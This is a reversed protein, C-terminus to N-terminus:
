IGAIAHRVSWDIPRRHTWVLRVITVIYALLAIAIVASWLTLGPLSALLTVALGIVGAALAYLQWGASKPLTIRPLAIAPVMRYSVACVTLTVWGVAALHAHGALNSIVSGSMFGYSKDLALLFGLTAAILLFCLAIFMGTEAVGRGVQ